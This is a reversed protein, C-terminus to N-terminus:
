MKMYKQTLGVLDRLKRQATRSRAADDIGLNIRWRQGITDALSEQERQFDTLHKAVIGDFQKNTNPSSKTSLDQLLSEIEKVPKATVNVREVPSKIGQLAKSTELVLRPLTTVLDTIDM